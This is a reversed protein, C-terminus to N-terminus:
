GAKAAKRAKVMMANAERLRNWAASERERAAKWEPTSKVSDATLGMPGKPASNSLDSVVGSAASFEAEAEQVMWRITEISLSAKMDM